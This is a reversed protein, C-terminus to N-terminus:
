FDPPSYLDDYEETLLREYKKSKAQRVSPPGQAAKRLASHPVDSMEIDLEQTLKRNRIALYIFGALIIIFLPIGFTM